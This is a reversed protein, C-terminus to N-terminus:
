GRVTWREKLNLFPTEFYRFSLWALVLTCVYAFAAFFLGLHHQVFPVRIQLMIEAYQQHLIDHFVYAGYSIRGVWRLPPLSLLRAVVTRPQLAMVLVAGSVVNVYTLGWTQKWAPYPYNAFGHSISLGHTISAAALLVGIVAVWRATRILWARHGGRWLLALLAGLLLSDLQFPTLRYTLEGAMMWSPAYSAAIVRALPDLVVVAACIWMLTRRRAVWFVVAPWFLYFQEEVCLSWFHGFFLPRGLVGASYLHADAALQLPTGAVGAHPSLFRLFNGVYLPWAIWYRNWEWRFYPTSLLLVLAVGFYLPFIRLTRRIYFNRTRHRDNRTDYLIGTILFGSLVFFVNVGTWGWPMFLYHECLVMTFAIARLGDLAPYVVRNEPATRGTNGAM